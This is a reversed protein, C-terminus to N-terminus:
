GAAPPVEPISATARRRIDDLSEHLVRWVNALSVAAPLNGAITGPEDTQAGVADLTAHALEVLAPDTVEVTLRFEDVRIRLTRRGAEEPAEDSTGTVNAALLADRAQDLDVGLSVLTRAAVSDPDALAALMLHQSGVPQTGALRSAESLATDAAPTTDLEAAEAPEESASSRRRRLWRRGYETPTTPLLDLVAMRVRVEVPEPAHAAVIQAGVGEKERVLGLLVHETGIYNHGLSLAERLSYELAKKSRPTFPIHGEPSKQGRGVRAVVEERAETLSLGFGNLVKAGVGDPEGLLGLLVHETGIYNHQMGRAEEQALVVVHRAKDTFREFMGEPEAQALLM